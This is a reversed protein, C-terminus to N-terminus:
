DRSNSSFRLVPTTEQKYVFELTFSDGTKVGHAECFGIWDDGLALVGDRSLLFGSCVKRNKGLMTVKGLRNIGNAEMFHSPLILKVDEHTRTLTVFRNDIASSPVRNEEINNKDKTAMTESSPETSISEKQSTESYHEGQQRGDSPSEESFFRLMPTADKWIFELMFSEGIKLGNAKTFSKWGKRLQMRRGGKKELGLKAVWKTGDKGLLTILRHKDLGNKTTFSLPLGQRGKTLSDHTLTLTVFRNEKPSLSARRCPLFKNRVLEKSSREERNSKAKITKTGSNPETYVPEKESAKSRYEGQQRKDSSSDTHFLSLMPTTDQWISELTFSGGIKLGNAIAFDRWVKGLTMRGTRDRKRNVLWKAGDKGLLTIIGPKDLGNERMFPLPLCLKFDEHTLTLTLFRNHVASSPDRNEEINSKAKTAMTESSPETSISEKESTKSYREEQQKRDSPSEESLLSLMPTAYKWIFELTFSEGLKLGNAEAFFKWGKTLQMPGGKSHWCLYALWEAGDKGLLTILRPKDLGNERTFLLPLRLRSYRLNNHTLTLTAFRNENPSLSARRYPLCKNRVLEKSSREDRNSEAIRTKNGSNPETYVPEKESVKSCYEGQERRDKSSDTHFLSLMPTTDQWILELTISEGMKLGNAKAFEKWGKGLSMRGGTSERRRNAVSKTGDKGLLTIIGPKDMGNERMFPLPLCLGAKTFSRHGLTLTLFRNENPSLSARRSPLEESFLRLMPTADKWISELTISEGIKLGNARAFSKWGKGLKMRGGKKELGLNAVWKTGDKGLLTILQPKDLGNKTTFSSPLGLRGTRLSDHTLTLTAFRSENPSLSARRCPPFKNRVLEKSSREERNSKAKITKNGSNPETYVPERESAKSCHEGQQRKDSRSDTHLLSLMPTTDQWILELTFSGGIKLGNGIAFERLGKGLSMRGTCGQKLSVLWKTGDKGLLTIIGPKDLGNERMFPLSLCLKGYTFSSESLTLTMYRNQSLRSKEKELEICYEKNHKNNNDGTTGDNTSETSCFSLVPTEGNGVLKFMFFGGAEQGNEECFKRWGRSIYFTGSSEDFTLDLVWSREGGDMVLIKRCNRTIDNSSTFHQPLYLADNQLNSAKVLAVFCSHDSSFSGAETEPSSKKAKKKSPFETNDQDDGGGDEETRPHQHKKMSIHGTKDQDNNSRQTPFDRNESDSCRPGLDSLGLVM